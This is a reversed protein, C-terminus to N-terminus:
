FPLDETPDYSTAYTAATGYDTTYTVRDFELAELKIFLEPSDKEGVIKLDVGDSENISITEPLPRGYEDFRAVIPMKKGYMKLKRSAELINKRVASSMTCTIKQIHIPAIELMLRGKLASLTTLIKDPLLDRTENCRVTYTKYAPNYAVDIKVKSEEEGLLQKIWMDKTYLYEKSPDLLIDEDTWYNKYIMSHDPEFALNIADILPTHIIEQATGTLMNTRYSNYRGFIFPEM